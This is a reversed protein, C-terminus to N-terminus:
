DVVLGHKPLLDRLVFTRHISAAQFFRFIPYSLASDSKSSNKSLEDMGQKWEGGLYQPIEDVEGLLKEDSVAIRWRDERERRDSSEFSLVEKVQEEIAEFGVGDSDRAERFDRGVGRFGEHLNRCAELFTSQNDRRSKGREDPLHEYDFEWRLYPYDPYKLAAGHGLAASLFEAGESQIVRGIWGAARNYQELFTKEEEDNRERGILEISSSSIENWESSIGSFGYHSFTDAYVHAGIGTLYLGYPQDVKSLNHQFMERAVESDQRCILRESMTQGKGGPLFHFPVWVLRQDHRDINEILQSVHHATPTFDLRGQDDFELTEKEGNDDVFQSATAITQCLERRLGAARAMAYTASYHFDSHM